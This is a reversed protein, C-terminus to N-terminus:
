RYVNSKNVMECKELWLSTTHSAQTSFRQAIRPGIIKCIKTNSFVILNPALEKVLHTFLNTM